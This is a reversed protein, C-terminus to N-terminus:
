PAARLPPRGLVARSINHLELSPPYKGPPYIEPAALANRVQDFGPPWGNAQRGPDFLVQIQYLADATMLRHHVALPHTPAWHEAQQLLRGIERQCYRFMLDSLEAEIEARLESLQRM